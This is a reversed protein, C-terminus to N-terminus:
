LSETTRNEDEGKKAKQTSKIM